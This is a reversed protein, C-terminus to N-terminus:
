DHAWEYGTDMDLNYANTEEGEAIEMVADTIDGFDIVSGSAYLRFLFSEFDRKFTTLKAKSDSGQYGIDFGVVKRTKLNVRISCSCDSFKKESGHGSYGRRSEEDFGINLEDSRWSEERRMFCVSFRGSHSDEYESKSDRLKEVLDDFEVVESATPCIEGILTDIQNIAPGEIHKNFRERLTTTIFHNYELIGVNSMDLKLQDNLAAEFSKGFDSYSRFFSSLQSTITEEIKQEIAGKLEDSALTNKVANIAIQEINLM